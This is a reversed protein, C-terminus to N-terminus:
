HVHEPMGKYMVMCQISEWDIGPREGRRVARELRNRKYPPWKCLVDDIVWNEPVVECFLGEDERLEVVCFLTAMRLNKRYLIFCDNDNVASYM